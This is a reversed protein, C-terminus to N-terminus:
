LMMRRVIKNLPVDAFDERTLKRKIRTEICTICIIGKSTKFGAERWTEKTLMYYEPEEECDCCKSFKGDIIDLKKLIDKATKLDTNDFVDDLLSELLPFNDVIKILLKKHRNM